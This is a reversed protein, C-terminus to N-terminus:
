QPGTLTTSIPIPASTRAAILGAVNSFVMSSQRPRNGTGPTSPCLYLRPCATTTDPPMDWVPAARRAAMAASRPPAPSTVMAEGRAASATLAAALRATMTRGTSPAASNSISSESLRKLATAIPGPAPTPAAVRSITMADSRPSRATTMSASPRVLKARPRLFPSLAPGVVVAVLQKGCQRGVAFDTNVGWAPSNWRSNSPVIGAPAFVFVLRAGGRAPGARHDDELAGVGDDRRRVAAGGDIGIRRGPEGGRAGAVHQGPEGGAQEGLAHRWEFGGTGGYPNMAFGGVAAPGPM